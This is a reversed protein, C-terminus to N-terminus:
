VRFGVGEDQVLGVEKAPVGLARTAGGPAPDLRHEGPQIAEQRGLLLCADARASHAKPVLIPFGVNKRKKKPLPRPPPPDHYGLVISYEYSRPPFIHVM